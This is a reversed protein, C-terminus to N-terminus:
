PPAEQRQARRRRYLAHREYGTLGARIGPRATPHKGGEEVLADEQCEARVPCRTCIEKAMERDTRQSQDAFWLDPSVGSPLNPLGCLAHDRWTDAPTLAPLHRDTIM